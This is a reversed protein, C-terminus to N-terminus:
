IAMSLIEKVAENPQELEVASGITLTPIADLAAHAKMRLHEEHNHGGLNSYGFSRCWQGFMFENLP